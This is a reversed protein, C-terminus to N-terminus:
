SPNALPAVEIVKRHSGGTQVPVTGWFEENHSPSPVPNFTGMTFVNVEAHLM